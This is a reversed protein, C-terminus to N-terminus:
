PRRVASIGKHCGIRSGKTQSSCSCLCAASAINRRNGKQSPPETKLGSRLLTAGRAQEQRCSILTRKGVLRAALFGRVSHALWGTAKMLEKLSAGDPRRLLVL